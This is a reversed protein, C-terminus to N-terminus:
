CKMIQMWIKHELRQIKVFGKLERSREMDPSSKFKALIKAIQSKKFTKQRANGTLKRESTKAM